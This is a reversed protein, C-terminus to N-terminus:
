FEQAYAASDVALCTLLFAAAQRSIPLNGTSPSPHGPKGPNLRSHLKSRILTLHPHVTAPLRHCAELAADFLELPEIELFTMDM